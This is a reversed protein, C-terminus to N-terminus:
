MSKWQGGGQAYEWISCPVRPRRVSVADSPLEQAHPGLGYHVVGDVRSLTIWGARTAPEVYGGFSRSPKGVLRSLESIPLPGRKRIESLAVAAISGPKPTYERIM